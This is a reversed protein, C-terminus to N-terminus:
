RCGSMAILWLGVAIAIWRALWGFVLCKMVSTNSTSGTSAVPPCGTPMRQAEGSQRCKLLALPPLGTFRFIRLRAQTTIWHAWAVRGRIIKRSFTSSNWSQPGSPSSWLGILASRPRM